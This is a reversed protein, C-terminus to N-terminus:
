VRMPMLVFYSSKDEHPIFLAPSGPEALKIDVAETKVHALIDGIYRSNFGITIPGQGADEYEAEVSEESDGADPNQVSLKISGAEVDLKVARGRESSITSVRDVAAALTETEVRVLKDNGSPVVRSYDPFTGDITKSTLTMTDTAFRVRGDAVTVTVSEAGELAFPLLRITERHVIVAPLGDAGDPLPVEASALRHGDTSVAALVKGAGSNRVHLYIGRLYYRTEEESIAFETTGILKLLDASPMSFTHNSDPPALDPFDEVPLTNLVFRSRGSRVTVQAKDPVPAIIVDGAKPLKGIIQSLLDAPLCVQGPTKVKVSTSVALERDLDTGRLSLWDHGATLHVYGLIPITNRKNVARTVTKVAAQLAAVPATLQM